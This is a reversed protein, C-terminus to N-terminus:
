FQHRLNRMTLLPSAKNDGGSCNFFKCNYILANGIVTKKKKDYEKFYIM